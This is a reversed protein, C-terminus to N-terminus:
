EGGTQKMKEAYQTLEGDRLNVGLYSLIRYCIENHTDDPMEFDVSNGADYVANNNTVTYAWVPKNPKRIYTIVISQMDTPYVQCYTDYFVMVPYRKSPADIFSSLRLSLENDNLVDVATTEVSPDQGCDKNMIFSGRASSLHVYDSPLSFQGGTLMFSTKKLFPKIDDTIKQTMQWGIRPKPLGYQYQAPNGYRQMFLDIQAREAILNFDDPKINGRQNKNSVFQVFKYAENITM